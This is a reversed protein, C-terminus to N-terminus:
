QPGGIAGAFASCLQLASQPRMAPDLALAKEFFHRLGASAEPVHAHLPTMRGDVIGNRIEASTAGAFPHVGALMEYAVVSLAWLDWSESPKGGRLEEPSMYKLTGILRGPETQNEGADETSQTLSKVVGFDLIKPTESGETEALYINEPKLDRHLLKRRHATDVAACVGSMIGCARLLPFRHVRKLEQRLTSGRLLEMVLYARGDEAVGYDYVSVVNAHSFSAAARAEQKFRAAAESSSTLVPHILKIAVPRDLETDYSEYVIGMGGKGLRQEFRYRRGLMRPYPLPTLAAGEKRCCDSDSDYCTGCEPCEKFGGSDSIVSPSQELLLALSSAIGELLEQDERSYPSESRKPGVALLAETKGEGLSIPFLWELRARRLFDSEEPPLHSWPWGTEDQSIEVPKSLVRVLAMLRSDAAIPTLARNGGALVRFATDGPARVLIAAFQPHLASEIQLVVRPAVKEFSRAARIEEIVNRLVRQANYHERFFRRDLANLWSRRYLHLLLGGGALLGYLLGRRSLIEGLPQSRHLLLDGAWVIAVIPVLSLLAGRAVVYQVGQRIMIRIDFLRHQLIAYAISIPLLCALCAIVLVLNPNKSLLTVAGSDPFSLAAVIPVYSALTIACGTVVVRARRRDNTDRLRIYNLILVIFVACYNAFQLTGSLAKFWSPWWLSFLYVPPHDSFINIPLAILGPLWIVAWIWRQRFLRRPFLSAFTVGISSFLAICVSPLLVLLWGIIRPTSQIIGHWGPSLPGVNIQLIGLAALFLAGWRAVPDYPRRYAVILALIFQVVSLMISPTVPRYNPNTIWDTVPRRSITLFVTKNEQGRTIEIPFTRGPVWFHAGRKSDPSTSFFGDAKSYLIVDGPEMGAKAAPSDPQVTKIEAGIPVGSKNTVPQIAFGLDGTVHFCHYYRAGACILFAAAVIHMWWPAHRPHKVKIGARSAPLTDAIGVSPDGAARMPMDEGQFEGPKDPHSVVLARAAVEVAPSEIFGGMEERGELLREVKKRISEDGACAQTLYAERQAPELELAEFFIQEIRRWREPDM